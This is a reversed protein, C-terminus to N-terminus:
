KVVDYPWDIIGGFDYVQTYGLGVLTNAATASRNGSRCYVLIKQDKDPLAEAAMASVSGSPLLVAGPIHGSDYESQERVDLIIVNEETDIVVKAEEASLKHYVAASQNIDQEKEATDVTGSCASLTM